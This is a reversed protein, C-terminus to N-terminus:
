VRRELGLLGRPLREQLSAIEKRFSPSASKELPQTAVLGDFTPWKTCMRLALAEVELGCHHQARAIDPCRYPASSQLQRRRRGDRCKLPRAIRRTADPKLGRRGQVLRSSTRLYTLSPFAPM